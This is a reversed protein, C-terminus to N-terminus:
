DNVSRLPEHARDADVRRLPLRPQAPDDRLLTGEPTTFFTTTTRDHEPVKADLKADIEVAGKGTATFKFKLTMSGSKRTEMVALVLERVQATAERLLRGGEIEGLTDTFPKGLHRDDDGYDM